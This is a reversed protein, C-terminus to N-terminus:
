FIKRLFPIKRITYAGLFCSTTVIISVIFFKLLSPLKIYQFFFSIYVTFFAHNFYVAYAHDAMFHTLRNSKNYKSRFTSLLWLSIGICVFSEWFSYVLSQWRWGGWFLLLQGDFAGGIYLLIPFFLICVVSIWVWKKIQREHLLELWGSRYAIIGCIFYATYPAFHGLRLFLFQSEVPSFIRIIFTLFSLIIVFLLITKDVPFRKHVPILQVHILCRTLVYCLSFIFLAELFWMPGPTARKIFDIPSSIIEDVIYEIFSINTGIHYVYKIIPNVLLAFLMLPIGLRLFRDKLFTFSGKRDYSMPTFYGAIAFFLSMFFAQNVLIFYTLIRKTLLDDSPDYFYWGMNFGYTIALHFAIVKLTLFVRLNDLYILRNSAM